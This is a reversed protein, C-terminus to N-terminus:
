IYGGTGITLFKSEYLLVNLGVSQSSGHFFLISFHYEAGRAVDLKIIIFLEYERSKLNAHIQMDPM